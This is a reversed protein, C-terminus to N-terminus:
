IYIEAMCRDYLAWQLCPDAQSPDLESDSDEKEVM